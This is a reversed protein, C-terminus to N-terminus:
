ADLRLEEREGDPSIRVVVLDRDTLTLTETRRADFYSRKFLWWLLFVDLGMFGFVPWAGMLFLPLGIVLNAAVAGLMVFRFGDASLSRYPKLSTAFHVAPVPAETM